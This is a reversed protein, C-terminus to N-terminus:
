QRTLEGQEVRAFNMVIIEQGDLELARYLERIIHEAKYAAAELM